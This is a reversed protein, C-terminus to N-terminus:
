SGTVEVKRRKRSSSGDADGDARHQSRPPSLPTTTSGRRRRDHFIPLEDDERREGRGEDDSEQDSGDYYGKVEYVAMFAQKRSVTPTDQVFARVPPIQSNQPVDTLRGLDGDGDDLENAAGREEVEDDGRKRKRAGGPTKKPTKAKSPTKKEKIKPKRDSQPPVSADIVKCIEVHTGAGLLADFWLKQNEQPTDGPGKVEVFKCVGQAADWVILDPVGSARGGYDECFLRCIIALPKGGICEVIEVLDQRECIDWKVGTCWTNRPRYVEDHRELIEKAKGDEIEQLRQDILLKRAPYFSDDALDLPATQFRTEFAGQIDAFLIDWFLLGFITTLVSTESHFGKFGHSEYYQLACIEVTVEEGGKGKWVSKGKSKPGNGGSGSPQSKGKGKDGKSGSTSGSGLGSGGQLAGDIGTHAGDGASAVVGNGATMKRGPDLAPSFYVSLGTTNGKGPKPTQNVVAVDSSTPKIVRGNTDVQIAEKRQHVRTAKFSVVEAKRLEGVCQTRDVEPVQLRKELKQIRRVLQPRLVIGVDTDFLAEKLGDLAKRLVGLDPKKGDPGKSLYQTYVLARRDYWKARKGRAWFRQGLLAELVEAEFDYEKLTALARLSKHVMRTYIHGRDFRELGPPRYRMGEERQTGVINLWTPYIQTEFLEKVERAKQVSLPEVEVVEIEGEPNDVEGNFGNWASDEGEKGRERAGVRRSIKIPTTLASVGDPKSSSGPTISTMLNNRTAPTKTGRGKYTSASSGNGNGTTMMQKDDLYADLQLAAEYELVDQRTEWITGVRKFEYDPYRRKKFSTLLSPTLLGDPYRTCRFFIIHLRHILLYYDYNVKVCKGLRKLALERLRAEQTRISARPAFPLTTQRLRSEPTKTQKPTHGHFNLVSQSSSSNLLAEVMESKTSKPAKVKMIKVLEKLEEVKLAMLVDYLSMSREDRCFYNLKLLSIDPIPTPEKTQEETWNSPGAVVNDLPSQALKNSLPEAPSSEDDSDETLDIVEKEEKRIPVETEETKIVPKVDEEETKINLGGEDSNFPKCLVKLAPILGHEGVERKFNDMKRIAHWENPKWLVLRAFCYRADYDIERLRGLSEWEYPTLLHQEHEYVVNIIEELAKVYISVRKYEADGKQSEAELTHEDSDEVFHDLEEESDSGEGGRYILLNQKLPTLFTTDM